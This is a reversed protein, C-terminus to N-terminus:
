KGKLVKRKKFLKNTHESHRRGEMTALASKAINYKPTLIGIYLQELLLKDSNSCRDLIIFKLNNIKYKKYARQLVINYHKNRKLANIHASKRANIDNTSGIYYDGTKKNYIMYIYSNM